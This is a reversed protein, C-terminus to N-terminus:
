TATGGSTKSCRVRGAGEPRTRGPKEPGWTHEAQIGQTLPPAATPSAARRPTCLDGPRLVDGHHAGGAGKFGNPERSPESPPPLPHDPSAPLSSCALHSDWPTGLSQLGPPPDWGPTRVKRSQQQTGLDECPARGRRAERTSLNKGTAASGCNCTKECNPLVRLFAAEM